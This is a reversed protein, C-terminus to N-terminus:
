CRCCFPSRFVREGAVPLSSQFMAQASTWNIALMVREGAVPLSSQFQLERSGPLLGKIVREGAVPLSSQFRQTQHEAAQVM